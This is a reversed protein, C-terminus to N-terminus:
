GCDAQLAAMTSQMADLARDAAWSREAAEREWGARYADAQLESALAEADRLQDRLSPLQDCAPNRSPVSISTPMAQPTAPHTLGWPTLRPLPVVARATATATETVTVTPTPEATAASGCGALLCGIVLVLGVLRM